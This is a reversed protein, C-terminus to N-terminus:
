EAWSCEARREPLAAAIDERVACVAGTVVLRGISIEMSVITATKVIQRPRTSPVGSNRGICHRTQAPLISRSPSYPNIFPSPSTSLSKTPFGNRTNSLLGPKTSIRFCLFSNASHTRSPPFPCAGLLQIAFHDYHSLPPTSLTYYYPLGHLYPNNTPPHRSGKILLLAFRQENRPLNQAKM